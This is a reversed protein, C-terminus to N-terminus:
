RQYVTRSAIHDQLEEPRWWTPRLRRKSFAYEAQDDYHPSTSRDSQGVPLYIYSKIPDSLEVVQTSTQGRDAWFARDERQKGYGVTRLTTLGLYDDSGGGVPWSELDRGVRFIDGYTSELGGLQTLDDVTRNFAHQVATKEADSLVVAEPTLDLVILYWNDIRERMAAYADRSMTEALTIKFYTYKLAASSDRRLEGNWNSLEAMIEQKQRDLPADQLAIELVMIWREIGYPKVDLAYSLADELTVSDDDNLLELARAGRQNIWGDRDPGYHASAYVEPLYDAMKFPGSVMMADPPINCNQMYGHPPNVVQVLESSPHFGRWETASTSGDVPRSWDYGPARVPVRGARHYFINGTTDAVMFNQPYTGLSELGAIVDQYGTGFNLKYFLDGPSVNEDYAIRAAYAKPDDGDTKWAIIPGHHSSHITVQRTEEGLIEFTLEKRTMQQWAGDYRYRTHDDPDLILEYVDATDPGGTTMAWAMHRTHGLAIYFQGPLSVGSGVLEGAHIRLEWFRTVGWWSLHPDILLIPNGSASRDPGVVWQNSAHRRPTFGPDIGARGLDGYAENISWNYLFYRSFAGFMYVDLERDGWWEPIDEPHASYHDIVGQAFSGMNRQMEANESSFTRKSVGYHNFIRHTIDHNLAEIGAISAFEGLAMKLNILLQAPRDEAQARGMAYLGDEVTPAYIHPVGWTDRYVVIKSEDEGQGPLHSLTQTSPTTACSCLLFVVLVSSLYRM